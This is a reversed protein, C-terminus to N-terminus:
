IGSNAAIIGTILAIKMKRIVLLREIFPESSSSIRCEYGM